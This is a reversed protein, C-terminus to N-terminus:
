RRQVRQTYRKKRKIFEPLESYSSGKLPTIESINLFVKDIALFKWGSGETNKTCTGNQLDQLVSGQKNTKFNPTVCLNFRFHLTIM